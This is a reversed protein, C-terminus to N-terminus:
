RYYTASLNSPDPRKDAEYIAHGELDIGRKQCEKIAADAIYFMEVQARRKKDLKIELAKIKENFLTQVAHRGSVRTDSATLERLAFSLNDIWYQINREISEWGNTEHFIMDGNAKNSYYAVNLVLNDTLDAFNPFFADERTGDNMVAGTYGGDNEAAIKRIAKRNM